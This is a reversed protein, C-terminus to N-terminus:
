IRVKFVTYGKTPEQITLHYSLVPALPFPISTWTVSISSDAPITRVIEPIVSPPEKSPYTSIVVSPESVMLQLVGSWALLLVVRFQFYYFLLNM